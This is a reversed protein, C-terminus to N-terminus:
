TGLKAIDFTACGGFPSFHERGFSLGFFCYETYNKRGGVFLNTLGAMLTCPCSRLLLSFSSSSSEGLGMEDALIM